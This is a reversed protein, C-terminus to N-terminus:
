RAQPREDDFWAPALPKDRPWLEDLSAADYLRGNKMVAVTGRTARIDNRPDDTLIVLDAYKGPEISGFEGARGIATASGITGARLAEMPTMGGQVHAELEWHFGPGPIEGHAGIGVVGGARQIRAVDGGIRPYLLTAPDVWERALVAAAASYPRTRRFKGDEFPRDRIVFQDQAPRGGNKIQLTADYSTGSRAVFEIVDRYLATPLAHENGAYGDMIQSLDLKLSLSGETTPMMGLQYAAEIMWERQRRNGIMYQKLNRTRYHDRYRMALARADDLSQIRNFSFMAPGTSPIRSGTVLGADVMDQYSFMDISLTSPDFSTTIGYALRARLGWSGRALVDRRIDAVHDHIDIFGPVITRGAVDRVAAGDPVPFSGQAGVAAIRDNVILVAANEIVEDYRMTICRAGRLLLAGQPVDRPVFVPVEFAQTNQGIVPADASWDSSDSGNLEISALPRRYFTSGVSWTIARGEDAWEFYDAGVATIRRHPVGPNSLDIPEDPLPTELLHLQEAIQVLLRKGDPSVRLNDVPVAGEIFYWGPGLVPAASQADGTALDITFTHPSGQPPLGRRGRPHGGEGDLHVGDASFHPKGGIRGSYIVRPEGPKARSWEVLSGERLGEFDMVNELRGRANSRVALISRGDPTFVPRAYFAPTTSVRRPAGGRAPVVWVEGAAEATWTVYVIERGDPSWSPHFAPTDDRTLPEPKANPALRMRYLRGLASFAVQTGDPSQEPTQILRVKVPGTEQRIQVRTQPGLEIAVAATFPIPQSAGAGLPLRELSGHRSLVIALGDPAFDYRPVLDQWSQADIQDHEIPFALWREAGSELDRIKLGTDGGYRTAYVLKTGDPSLLPRFARKARSARGPGPPDPIVTEETGSQVDRRVISWAGDDPDGVRRAFYVSQGDPSVVAGLSSVGGRDHPPDHDKVPVVLEASGDLGYRWLEYNNLSWLFRSVYLAQGDPTWAPSVLVSDDDGFTIQRADSGDPRVLWLNEAGSRDSVFAIWTGDPSYTPQADFALGHTIATARGGGADLRYLDGLLDFAIEDGQPAVDVSMWTGEDIDFAITRTPELPLTEGPPQIPRSGAVAPVHSDDNTAALPSPPGEHEAVAVRALLGALLLLLLLRAGTM